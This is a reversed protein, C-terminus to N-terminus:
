WERGCCACARVNRDKSLVQDIALDIESLTFPKTDDSIDEAERSTAMSSTDSDLLEMVKMANLGALFTKKTSFDDHHPSRSKAHELRELDGLNCRKKGRPSKSDLAERLYSGVEVELLDSATPAPTAAAPSEQVLFQRTLKKTDSPPPTALAKAASITFPPVASKQAPYTETSRKRTKSGNEAIRKKPPTTNRVRYLYRPFQPKLENNNTYDDMNSTPNPIYQECLCILFFRWYSSFVLRLIIHSLSPLSKPHVEANRKRAGQNDAM